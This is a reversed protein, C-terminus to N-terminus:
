LKVGLRKCYADLAEDVMGLRTEDPYPMDFEFEIAARLKERNLPLPRRSIGAVLTGQGKPRMVEVDRFGSHLLAKLESLTFYKQMKPLTAFEGLVVNPEYTLAFRTSNYANKHLDKSRIVKHNGQNAASTYTYFATYPGCLAAILTVVHRRDADFPVSNFVANLFISSWQKGSAVHGLFQETLVRAAPRDITNNSTCVYPEFADASIGAQRLLRVDDLRGAGFDLVRKGFKRQWISIHEPNDMEIQSAQLGLPWTTGIGLRHPHQGTVRRFSNHRLIDSYRNHLDFDM